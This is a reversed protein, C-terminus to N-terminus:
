TRGLTPLFTRGCRTDDRSGVYTQEHGGDDVVLEGGTHVSPLMVVLTGVTADHKESDQHPLFFQGKGYVLMSHLEATLQSGAPMGLEERFHELAANLHAHWRPGGLSVQDPTLEWTDRVSPDRPTEEGRGFHAPRAASILRKAQPARVPTTVPGLDAVDLSLIDGPLHLMASDARPPETGALLHALRDRAPHPM